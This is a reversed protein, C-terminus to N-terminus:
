LHEVLYSEVFSIYTIFLKSIIYTKGFPENNHILDLLNTNEIHDQRSLQTARNIARNTLENSLELSVFGLHFRYENIKEVYEKTLRDLDIDNQIQYIPISTSLLNTDSNSIRNSLPFNNSTKEQNISPTDKNDTTNLTRLNPKRSCCLHRCAILTNSM